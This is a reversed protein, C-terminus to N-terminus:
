VAKRKSIWGRRNPIYGFRPTKMINIFEGWSRSSRAETLIADFIDITLEGNITREQIQDLIDRCTTLNSKNKGIRLIDYLKLSAAARAKKISITSDSDSDDIKLVSDKEERNDEKNEQNQKVEDRNLLDLKKYSPPIIKSVPTTYNEIGGQYLKRYGSSGPVSINKWLTKIRRQCGHKKHPLVQSSVWGKDTLCKIIQKVRPKSLDFFQEFHENEAFCGAESKDLSDIEALFAAETISLNSNLWLEAPIWVGKFGRQRKKNITRTM